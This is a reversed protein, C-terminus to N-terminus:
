CDFVKHLASVLHFPFPLSCLFLFFISHIIYTTCASTTTSGGGGWGWGGGAGGRIFGQLPHISSVTTGHRREQGLKAEEEKM